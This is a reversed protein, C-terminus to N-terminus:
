TASEGRGRVSAYPAAKAYMKMAALWYNPNTIKYRLWRSVYHFIIEPNDIPTNTVERTPLAIESGNPFM